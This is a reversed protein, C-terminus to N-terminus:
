DDLRDSRAAGLELFTAEDQVAFRQLDEVHERLLEVVQQTTCNGLHLWVVKPPAGYLVSLRHFDEDKSVLLCGHAVAAQWVASDAAGTLGLSDIHLSDPYSASLLQPLRSSLQEDLATAHRSVSGPHERHPTRARRRVGPM